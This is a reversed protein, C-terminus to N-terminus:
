KIQINLREELHAGEVEKGNKIALKIAIKDPEVNLKVFDRTLATIDDIEVSVSKRYSIKNKATELGRGECLADIVRKLSAAKNEHSKQREALAFKESKIAEAMANERKMWSCLSDMMEDRSIQLAKLKELDIIEGTTTDVAEEDSIIECALVQANIDFIDQIFGM